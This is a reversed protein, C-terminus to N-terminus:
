LGLMRLIPGIIPLKKLLDLFGGSEDGTPRLAVSGPGGNGTPIATPLAGREPASYNDEWEELMDRLEETLSTYDQIASQMKVREPVAKDAIPAFAARLNALHEQGRALCRGIAGESDSSEAASLFGEAAFMKLDGAAAEAESVTFQDHQEVCEHLLTYARKAAAHLGPDSRDGVDWANCVHHAASWRTAPTPDGMERLMDAFTYEAEPEDPRGAAREAYEAAMIAATQAEMNQQFGPTYKAYLTGYQTTLHHNVDAAMAANWAQQARQWQDMSLGHASLLASADEGGAIKAMIQAYTDLTVGEKADQSADPVDAMHAQLTLQQQMTSFKAHQQGSPDSEMRTWWGNWASAWRHEDLGRQSLYRHFHPKFAPEGYQATLETHKSMIEACDRMSLGHIQEDM